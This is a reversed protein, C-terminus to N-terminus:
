ENRKLWDLDVGLIERPETGALTQLGHDTFLARPLQTIRGSCPFSASPNIFLRANAVAVTTPHLGKVSLVASVRTNRGELSWVGDSDRAIELAEGDLDGIFMETGFLAELVANDDAHIQLANVAVIYPLDLKGYRSIKKKLVKRVAGATDVKKVGSSYWGITKVHPKGRILESKPFARFEITWDEHRFMFSPLSRLGSDKLLDLCQDADLTNLWESLDRRLKKTAPTTKAHGSERVHLFFRPSDLSDIEDFFRNKLADLARRGQSTETAVVAELYFSPRGSNVVLFDPRTATEKRVQPHVEVSYDLALLLAHLYLEFFASKFSTDDGSKIRTEVENQGDQPFTAFWKEILERIAKAVSDSSRELYLFQSEARSKPRPDDRQKNSFIM